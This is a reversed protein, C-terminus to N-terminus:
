NRVIQFIKYNEIIFHKRDIITKEYSYRHYRRTFWELDIFSNNFIQVEYKSYIVKSLIVNELSKEM